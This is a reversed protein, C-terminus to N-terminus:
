WQVLMKDQDIVYVQVRIERLVIDKVLRQDFPERPYKITIPKAYAMQRKLARFSFIQPQESPDSWIAFDSMKNEFVDANDLRGVIVRGACHAYPVM